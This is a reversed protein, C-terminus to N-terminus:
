SIDEDDQKKREGTIEEAKKQIKELIKEPLGDMEFIKQEKLHIQKEEDEENEDEQNNKSEEDEEDYESGEGNEQESEDDINQLEEELQEPEQYSKNSEKSSNLDEKEDSNTNQSSEKEIKESDEQKKKDEKNDKAKQEPGSQEQNQIEEKNEYEDSKQQESESYTNDEKINEDNEQELETEDENLKDMQNIKDKIEQLRELEQETEDKQEQTLASKVDVDSIESLEEINNSYENEQENKSKGDENQEQNEDNFVELKGLMEGAIIDMGQKDHILIEKTPKNDFNMFINKKEEQKEMIEQEEIMEQKKQNIEHIQVEKDKIVKEMDEVNRFKEKLSEPPLDFYEFFKSTLKIKKTRGYKERQIYGLEELQKLHEYAKNTRIRIVENQLVPNKYAIVALTEMVSKSLETEIGVEKAVDIYQDKITLKWEDGDQLIQLSNDPDENYRKKLEILCSVAKAKDKDKIMRLIEDIHIKKGVSFLVAEIKNKLIEDM